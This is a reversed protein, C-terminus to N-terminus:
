SRGYHLEPKVHIYFLFDTFFITSSRPEKNRLLCCLVFPNQIQTTAERLIRLWFSCKGDHLSALFRRPTSEVRQARPNIAFLYRVFTLCVTVLISPFDVRVFQTYQSLALLTVASEWRRESIAGVYLSVALLHLLGIYKWTVLAPQYWEISGRLNRWRKVGCNEM